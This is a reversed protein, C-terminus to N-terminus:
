AQMAMVADAEVGTPAKAGVRARAILLVNAFPTGASMPESQVTFGLSELRAIWQTLSRGFHPAVRHGRVVSVVRDVWQSALFGRRSAADGIRLLLLGSDHLSERVRTLVQDQEHPPVYHLVDLIVVADARPFATSRMDGCVFEARDGLAARARAIDRTMMEIGIVRAGLPAREWGAPWRGQEDLASASGLLSALLGQGCGIDLVRSRPAILGQVLLYRFVPDMRLKGRAFHWAFAGVTRYPASAADVLHQWQSDRVAFTM